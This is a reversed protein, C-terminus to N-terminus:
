GVRPLTEVDPTTAEVARPLTAADSAPASAPLSLNKLQETLAEIRQAAQRSAARTSKDQHVIDFAITKLEPLIARLEPTPTREVISTLAEAIAHCTKRVEKREGYYAFWIASAIMQCLIFFIAVIFSKGRSMEHFMMALGMSVVFVVFSVLMQRWLSRGVFCRKFAEVLPQVAREDGIHGLSEVAAVRVNIEEANLALCLPEVAHTDYDRLSKAAKLRQETTGERLDRLLNDLHEQRLADM